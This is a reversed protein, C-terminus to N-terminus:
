VICRRVCGRMSMHLFRFDFLRSRWLQRLIRECISVTKSSLQGRINSEQPTMLRSLQVKQRPFVPEDATAASSSSSFSSSISFHRCRILSSSPFHSFPSALSTLSILSSSNVFLHSDGHLLKRYACLRSYSLHSAMSIRTLGKM